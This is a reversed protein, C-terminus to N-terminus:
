RKAKKLAEDIDPPSFRDILRVVLQGQRNYFWFQPFSNIGYQQVFPAHDDEIMARLVILKGKNAPTSSLEDLYNVVRESQMLGKRHVHVVAAQGKKLFSSVDAEEGNSIIIAESSDTTEVRNFDLEMKIARVKSSPYTVETGDDKEFIFLSKEYGKLKLAVPGKGGNLAVSAAAPSSMTLRTVSATSAKFKKTKDSFFQFRGNSYGEFIGEIERGGTVLKDGAWLSVAVLWALGACIWRRRTM